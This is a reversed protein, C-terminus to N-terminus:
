IAQQSELNKLLKQRGTVAMRAPSVSPFESVVGSGLQIPTTTVGFWGSYGAACPQKLPADTSVSFYKKPASRKSKWISLLTAPNVCGTREYALKECASSSM